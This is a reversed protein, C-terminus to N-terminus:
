CRSRVREHRRSRSRSPRPATSRSPSRAATGRSALAGLRPRTSRRTPSSCTTAWGQTSWARWRACRPAASRTTAARPRPRPAGAGDVQVGQRASPARRGSAVAAMTDINHDLADLDVCLAPTPLEDRRMTLWTPLDPVVADSSRRAGGHPDRYRMSPLPRPPVRVAHRGSTMRSRPRGIEAPDTTIIRGHRLGIRLLRVPSHGSATRVRRRVAATGPRRPDIGCLFLVEARYINGLGAIVTQDLLVAGVPKTSRAMRERARDVDPPSPASRRRPERCILRQEAPTIM